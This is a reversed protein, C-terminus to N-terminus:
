SKSSSFFRIRDFKFSGKNALWCLCNSATAFANTAVSIAKICPGGPVPLVVTIASIIQCVNNLFGSDLISTVECVFRATSLANSRRLPFFITRGIRIPLISFNSSSPLIYEFSLICCHSDAFGFDFSSSFLLSLAIFSQTFLTLCLHLLSLSYESITSFHFFPNVSCSDTTFGM